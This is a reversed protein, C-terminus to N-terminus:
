EARIVFRLDEAGALVPSGAGTIVLAPGHFSRQNAWGALWDGVLAQCDALGADAPLPVWQGDLGGTRAAYGHLVM